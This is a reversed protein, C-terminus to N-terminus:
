CLNSLNWRERIEDTMRSTERGDVSINKFESQKCWLLVRVGHDVAQVRMLWVGACRMRGRTMGFEMIRLCGKESLCSAEYGWNMMNWELSFSSISSTQLFPPHCIITNKSCFLFFHNAVILFFMRKEIVRLGLEFFYREKGNIEKQWFGFSIPRM